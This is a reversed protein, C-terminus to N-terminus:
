IGHLWLKCSIESPKNIKRLGFTAEATNNRFCSSMGFGETQLGEAAQQYTLTFAQQSHLALGYGLFPPPGTVMRARNLTTQPPSPQKM